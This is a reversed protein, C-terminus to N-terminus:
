IGRVHNQKWKQEIEVKERELKVEKFMWIQIHRCRVGLNKLIKMMEQASQM